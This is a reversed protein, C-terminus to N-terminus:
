LCYAQGVGCVANSKCAHASRDWHHGTWLIPLYHTFTISIFCLHQHILREAHFSLSVFGQKQHQEGNQGGADRQDVPEIATAFSFRAMRGVWDRKPPAPRKAGTIGRSTITASSLRGIVGDGQGKRGNFGPRRAFALTTALLDNIASTMKARIGVAVVM